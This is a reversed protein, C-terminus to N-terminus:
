KLKRERNMQQATIRTREIEWGREDKRIQDEFSRGVEWFEKAFKQQEFEDMHQDELKSFWIDLTQRLKETPRKKRIKDLQSVDELMHIMNEINNTENEIVELRESM